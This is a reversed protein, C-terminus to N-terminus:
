KSGEWGGICLKVKTRGAHAAGVLQKLLTPANESDWDLDFKDTPVAFAFDIWDFHVFNIKEPPFGPGAWDPYYAMVLSTPEATVQCSSSPIAPPSPSDSMASPRSYFSSHISSPAQSADTPSPITQSLLFQDRAFSATQPAHRFSNPELTPTCQVFLSFLFSSLVISSLM